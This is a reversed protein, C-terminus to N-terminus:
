ESGSDSGASVLRRADALSFPWLLEAGSAPLHLVPILLGYRRFLAESESIDVKEFGIAPNAVCLSALMAEAVECLHCASTGFLTYQAASARTSM